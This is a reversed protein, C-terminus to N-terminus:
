ESLHSRAATYPRCNNHERLRRRWQRCRDASRRPIPLPFGQARRWLHPRWARHPVPCRNKPPLKDEHLLRGDAQDNRNIVSFVKKGGAQSGDGGLGEPIELADHYVVAGGVARRFNQVLKAGCIRPKDGQMYLVAADRGGAVLPEGLGPSFIDTKHISVIGNPGAIEGM